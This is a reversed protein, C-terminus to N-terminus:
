AGLIVIHNGRRVWRGHKAGAGAGNHGGPQNNLLGPAHTQAAEAAAAKAVAAPDANPAAQLANKVTEGAFKVFQKSAEFERDEPSLGELELGLASGAMSALGGGIQAGLPGGLFGGLATGALPLAKSAATKLVGGVAQGIPSKVVSGIASGAKKILDGLFQELEQENTVELLEAALEMQESENFVSQEGSEQEFGEYSFSEMQPTFDALRNGYSSM